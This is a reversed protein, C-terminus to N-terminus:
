SDGPLIGSGGAEHIRCLPAQECWNCVRQDIPAVRADGERFRIALSDIVERWTGFLDDWTKSDADEGLFIQRMRMDDDFGKIRAQGFDNTGFLSGDNALGKFGLNGGRKLVAFVVAAVDGQLTVAYLPMQPEEPRDGAWGRVDVAGTKYDIIVYEGSDLEDVRDLRGRFGVGQVTDEVELELDVVRFPQRARENELWECLMTKLRKAEIASFRETFVSPLRGRQLGIVDEVISEVLESIRDASMDALAEHTKVQDWFVQMLGHLLIGRQMANLGIDPDALERSHLRHRAFARFPCQSQDRFLQTGGLHREVPPARFDEFSEVRGSDFVIQRYSAAQGLDSESDFRAAKGPLLPSGLLPRDGEYLSHSLVVDPCSRLIAEQLQEARELSLEPDSGPVGHQKQLGIPIFPNSVPTPPWANENLGLMWVHDFHMADAGQPDLVEVPTEPTHPQFGQSDVERRLVALAEHRTLGERIVHTSALTELVSRWAESQQREHSDPQREGPWGVIELMGAFAEAWGSPADYRPLKRVFDCLDMLSKRFIRVSKGKEEIRDAHCVVDGSAYVQRNGDRLREDLLARGARETDHGRIFPSRLLVGLDDLSLARHELGLVTFIFRVMPYDSLPRGVSISFPLPATDHGYYLSGPLLVDEFTNHIRERLERLGPVLIGIKAKPDQEMKRKAWLAAWRTEEDVDVCQAISVEAGRDQADEHRFLRVGSEQLRSCFEEQQPNLRDFGALVIGDSGFELEPLLYCGIRDPLSSADIWNRRECQRVFTKSWSRFAQADEGLNESEPFEPIRYQRMNQWATQVQAAVSPVHWLFGADVDANIIQQWLLAEQVPNLLLELRNNGVRLDSWCRRIWATWPLIDPTEWSRLGQQLQKQSHRHKLYQALRINACIVSHGHDIHEDIRM